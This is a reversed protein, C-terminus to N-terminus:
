GRRAADPPQLRSASTPQGDPSGKAVGSSQEAMEAVGSLADLIDSLSANLKGVTPGIVATHSEVARVGWSVDALSARTRRLSSGIRTLYYALAGLVLAVEVISLVVLAAQM